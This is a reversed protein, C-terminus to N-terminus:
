VSYGSEKDTTKCVHVCVHVCLCVCLLLVIVLVCYILFLHRQDVHSRHPVQLPLLTWDSEVKVGDVKM